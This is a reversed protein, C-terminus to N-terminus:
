LNKLAEDFIKSFTSEDREEMLTRLIKYVEIQKKKGGRIKPLKKRWSRDVHWSCFLRMKPPQMVKIWANFFEDAMDSMFVNTYKKVRRIKFIVIFLDLMETDTRNSFMFSCPFGQYLNDLVLLSTLEFGYSNM